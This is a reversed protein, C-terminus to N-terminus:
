SLRTKMSKGVLRVIIGALRLQAHVGLGRRQVATTAPNNVLCNIAASHASGACACTSPERMRCGVTAKVQASPRRRPVLDGNSRILFVGHRVSGAEVPDEDVTPRPPTGRRHREQLHQRGNATKSTVHAYIIDPEDSRRLRHSRRTTRRPSGTRSFVDRHVDRRRRQKQFMLFRRPSAAVVSLSDSVRCGPEVAAVIMSYGLRQESGALGVHPVDHRRRPVTIRARRESRRAAYFLNGNPGLEDASSREHRAATAAFTCKTASDPDSPAPGQPM